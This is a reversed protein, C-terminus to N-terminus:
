PQLQRLFEETVMQYRAITGQGHSLITDNQFGLKMAIEALNISRDLRSGLEEKLIQDDQYPKLSTLSPFDRMAALFLQEYSRIVEDVSPARNEFREESVQLTLGPLSQFHAEQFGQLMTGGFNKPLLTKLAIMCAEFFLFDRTFTHFSLIRGDIEMLRDLVRPRDESRAKQLIGKQMKDQIIARDNLSLRPMLTELEDVTNYDLIDPEFGDYTYLEAVWWKVSRRTAALIRLNGQLVHLRTTDPLNLFQLPGHLIAESANQTALAQELVSADILVKVFNDPNLRSIGESQLCRDMNQVNFENITRPASKNIEFHHLSIKARGKYFQQRELTESM